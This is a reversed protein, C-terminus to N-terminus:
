GEPQFVVTIVQETSRDDGIRFRLTNPGLGLHVSITWVHNPGATTHDDFWQPIDRTITAGPPALGTVTIAGEYLVQGDLPFTIVLGTTIAPPRTPRPTPPQTPEPPRTPRPTSIPQPTSVLAPTLEPTPQPETASKAPQQTSIPDVTQLAGPAEPSPTEVDFTAGGSLGTPRASAAIAVEGPATPTASPAPAPGSTVIWGIALVGITIAVLAM